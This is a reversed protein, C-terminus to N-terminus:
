PIKTRKAQGCFIRSMFSHKGHCSFKWGGRANDNNATADHTDSKRIMEAMLTPAIVSGQHFVPLKCRAARPVRRPLDGVRGGTEPQAFTDVVVDPKIRTSQFCLGALRHSPVAAPGESQGVGLVFHIPQTVRQRHPTRKPEVDFQDPRFFDSFQM